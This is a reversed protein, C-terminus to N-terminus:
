FDETKDKTIMTSKLNNIVSEITKLAETRINIWRIKPMMEGYGCSPILNSLDGGDPVTVSYGGVNVTNGKHILDTIEFRYRGEKVYISILFTVIGAEGKTKKERLKKPILGKMKIFENENPSEETVVSFNGKGILKGAGKDEM